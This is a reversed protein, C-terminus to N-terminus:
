VFREDLRTVEAQELQLELDAIISLIEEELSETISLAKSNDISREGQLYTIEGYAKLADRVRDINPSMM